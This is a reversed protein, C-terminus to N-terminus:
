GDPTPGYEDIAIPEAILGLAAILDLTGRYCPDEVGVVDGPRLHAQLVRELADMAGAVVAISEAAIGDSEFWERAIAILDGRNTPAGYLPAEWKIRGLAENLSPLLKPDPNGDMLNRVGSPLRPTAPTVLAPRRNVVTGRRGSGRLLGRVRLSQYAA